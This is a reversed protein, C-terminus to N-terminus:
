APLTDPGPDAHLPSTETSAGFAGGGSEVQPPKTKWRRHLWFWQEPYRRVWDELRAVHRETLRLAADPTGKPDMPLPPEVTLEHRGDPHRRAFAMLIPAGTGLAIRAPGIATSAPRGLFPVFVGHRRADQDGVMAILSNARLLEYVRRVETDASVVGAGAARRQEVVWRDVHPNSQPRVVFAIPWRASVATGFLEFNGFHGTLIIAGRGQARAAEIHEFGVPDMVYEGWPARGLEALRPYEFAIRGVERYHERLVHRRRESDWDPFARALNDEAVSRRIGLGHVLDGLAAGVSLSRRWGVGRSAAALGRVFAAELAHTASV